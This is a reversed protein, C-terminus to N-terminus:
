FLHSFSDSSAGNTDSCLGKFLMLTGGNIVSQNVQLPARCSLTNSPRSCLLLSLVTVRTVKFIQYLLDPRHVLMLFSHPIGNFNLLATTPCPPFVGTQHGSSVYKREWSKKSTMTIKWMQPRRKGPMATTVWHCGRTTVTLFLAPSSLSFLSPIIVSVLTLIDEAQLLSGVSIITYKLSEGTM